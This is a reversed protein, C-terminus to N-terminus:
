SDEAENDNNLVEVFVRCDPYKGRVRATFEWESETKGRVEYESSGLVRLCRLDRETRDPAVFRVIYVPFSVELSAASELKKVREILGKM